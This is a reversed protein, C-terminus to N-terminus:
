FRSGIWQGLVSGAVGGVAGGIVTGVGPLLASGISAGIASGIAGGVAGGIARGRDEPSATAIDYADLAVGVVGAGRAVGRLVRNQGLHYAWDPLPKHNFRKLFGADANFHVQGSRDRDIHFTRAWGYRANPDPYGLRAGGYKDPRNEKRLAYELGGGSGLLGGGLANLLDIETDCLSLVMTKLGSPDTYNVPDNGCYRYLNPDGSTADIPDRQLWRATRPDYERAGVHYLGTAPVYEYGYAGNWM